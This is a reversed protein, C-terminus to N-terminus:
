KTGLAPLGYIMPTAQLGYSCLRPARTTPQPAFRPATQRPGWTLASSPLKAFDLTHSLTPFNPAHAHTNEHTQELKYLEHYKFRVCRQGAAHGGLYAESKVMRGGTVLAKKRGFVMAGLFHAVCRGARCRALSIVVARSAQDSQDASSGLLIPSRQRGEGQMKRGIIKRSLARWVRWGSAGV